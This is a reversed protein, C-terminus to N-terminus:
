ACHFWKSHGQPHFLSLRPSSFLVKRVDWQSYPTSWYHICISDCDYIKVGSRWSPHLGTQVLDTSEQTDASQVIPSPSGSVQAVSVFLSDQQLWLVMHSWRGWGSGLLPVVCLYNVYLPTLLIPFSPSCLICPQHWLLQTPHTHCLTEWSMHYGREPLSLMCWKPRLVLSASHSSHQKTIVLTTISLQKCLFCCPVITPLM